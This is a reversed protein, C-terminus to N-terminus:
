LSQSGYGAPLPEHNSASANTKSARYLLIVNNVLLRVYFHHNKGDKMLKCSQLLLKLHHLILFQQLLLQLSYLPFICLVNMIVSLGKSSFYCIWGNLFVLTSSTGGSGSAKSQLCSFLGFLNILLWGIIYESTM